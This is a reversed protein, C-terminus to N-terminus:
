VARGDNAGATEHNNGEEPFLSIQNKLQERKAEEEQMKRLCCPGYGDRLGARSTLIGGCRRCRRAKIEFVEELEEDARDM